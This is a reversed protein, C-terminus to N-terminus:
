AEGDLVGIMDRLMIAAVPHTALQKRLRFTSAV